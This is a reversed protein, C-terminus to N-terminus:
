EGFFIMDSFKGASKEGSSTKAVSLKVSYCECFINFM